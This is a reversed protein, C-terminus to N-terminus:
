RIRPVTGIAPLEVDVTAAEVILDGIDLVLGRGGLTGINERVYAAFEARSMVKQADALCRFAHKVATEAQAKTPRRWADSM